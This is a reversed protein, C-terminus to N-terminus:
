HCPRPRCNCDRRRVSSGRTRCRAPISGSRRGANLTPKGYLGEAVVKVGQSVRSLTVADLLEIAFLSRRLYGQELPLYVEFPRSV